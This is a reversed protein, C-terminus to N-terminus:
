RHRLFLISAATKLVVQVVVHCFHNTVVPFVETEAQHKIMYQSRFPHINEILWTTKEECFISESESAQEGGLFVRLDNVSLTAMFNGLLRALGDFGSDLGLGSGSGFSESPSFKMSFLASFMLSFLAITLFEVEVHAGQAKLNM